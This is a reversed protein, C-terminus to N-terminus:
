TLSMVLPVASVTLALVSLASDARTWPAPRAWTRGTAATPAAFGRADMAVAMRGARRLSAVLLGFTLAGTERIQAVPSRSGGFGRVRRTRRIARWDEAMEGLRQLAAVSAVVARAPLHLRQALHDGLEDPEVHGLLVAGAVTFFCIRLFATAATELSRPDGLLWASWAVTLGALLAVALRVATVVTWRLALPLLLVELGVAVLATRLDRIWLSGLLTLLCALLVSLPGCTVAPPTRRTLPRM